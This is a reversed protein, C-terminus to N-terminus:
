RLINESGKHQQVFYTISDHIRMNCDQQQM